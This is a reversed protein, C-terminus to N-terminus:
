WGFFERLGLLDIWSRGQPAPAGLAPTQAMVLVGGDRGGFWPLESWNRVVWLAVAAVLGCGGAIRLALWGRQTVTQSLALVGLPDRPDIVALDGGLRGRAPRAAVLAKDDVHEDDDRTWDPPPQSYMEQHRRRESSLGRQLDQAWKALRIEGYPAQESGYFSNGLDHSRGLAYASQGMGTNPASLASLDSGGFPSTSRNSQFYSSAVRPVLAKSQNEDIISETTTRAPSYGFGVSPSHHLKTMDMNSGLNAQRWLLFKTAALHRMRSINNPNLFKDVFYALDSSVLPQVYQSSMLISADITESDDGLASSISFPEKPSADAMSSDVRRHVAKTDSLSLTEINYLKLMETIREKQLEVVERAVTDARGIIPIVNTCQSLRLLLRKQADALIQGPSDASSIAVPDFIWLVVDVQTGGDGSLVHILESDSMSGMNTARHLFRDFLREIAGVNKEETTPPTDIFCLNRELVGDGLSKRRLLMRRSEFDTWWSPYPRTSALNEAFLCRGEADTVTNLSLSQHPSGSSIAEVHTVDECTRFISQILSTKGVGSSGVVMAKLRGMRKGRETFPRRTPLAISPMVLQTMFSDKSDRAVASGENDEEGSSSLVAQSSTDDAASGSDEDSLRVSKPSGSRPTGVGGSELQPSMGAPTLSISSAATSGRRVRSRGPSHPSRTSVPSISHGHGYDSSIIRQGTALIKPHVPNGAKRKKVAVGSPFVDGSESSRETMGSETRGHSREAGFTSSLTDELSQVGFSSDGLTNSDPTNDAEDLQNTDDQGAM